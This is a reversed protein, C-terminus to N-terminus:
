EELSTPTLRSDPGLPFTVTVQLDLESSTIEVGALDVNAKKASVYLTGCVTDSFKFFAPDAVIVHVASLAAPVPYVVDFVAVRVTLETPKLPLAEVM